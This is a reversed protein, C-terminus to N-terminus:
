IATKEVMGKKCSKRHGVDLFLSLIGKHLKRISGRIYNVLTFAELEVFRGQTRDLAGDVGKAVRHNM